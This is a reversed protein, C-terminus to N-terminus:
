STGPWAPRAGRSLSQHSIGIGLQRTARLLGILSQAEAIGVPSREPRYLGASIRKGTSRGAENEGTPVHIVGASIGLRGSRLADIGPMSETSSTMRVLDTM